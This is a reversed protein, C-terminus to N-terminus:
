QLNKSNYIIRCHVDKHLHIKNAYLIKSENSRINVVVRPWIKLM